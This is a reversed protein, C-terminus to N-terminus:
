RLLLELYVLPVGRYSVRGTERYGCRRYFAGAGAPGDYADLFVADATWDRALREVEDLCRRGIGRRQRAPEVVMDTLYLPRTVASFYSRDIAWPKRTALMLTAVLQDGEVGVFVRSRKMRSLVGAATSRGSWYGQGHEASLREAAANRLQAIPEADSAVAARFRWKGSM